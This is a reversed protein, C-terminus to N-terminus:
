ATTVNTSSSMMVLVNYYECLKWMVDKITRLFIKCFQSYGKMVVANNEKLCLVLIKCCSEAIM